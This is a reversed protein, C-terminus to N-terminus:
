GPASDSVDVSEGGAALRDLVAGNFAQRFVQGEFEDLLALVSEVWRCEVLIVLASGGPRFGRQLKTLLEGTLSVLIWAKSADFVGDMLGLLGGLISGFLVGHEPVVHGTEFLHTEGARDRILVASSTTALNGLSSHEKLVQLVRSARGAQNFLLVILELETGLVEKQVSTKTMPDRESDVSSDNCM